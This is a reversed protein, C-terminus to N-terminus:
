KCKTKSRVLDFWGSFLEIPFLLIREVKRKNFNWLLLSWSGICDDVFNIISKLSKFQARDPPLRHNLNWLLLFFILLLWYFFSSLAFSTHAFSFLFSPFCNKTAYLLASDAILQSCHVQLPSKEIMGCSVEGTCEM